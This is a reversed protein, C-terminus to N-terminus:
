DSEYVINIAYVDQWRLAEVYITRKIHVLGYATFLLEQQSLPSYIASSCTLLHCRQEFHAIKQHLVQSYYQEM